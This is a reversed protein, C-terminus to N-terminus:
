PLRIYGDGKGIVRHIRVLSQYIECFRLYVRACASEGYTGLHRIRVTHQQGTLKGFYLQQEIYTLVRDHHGHFRNNYFLSSGVDVYHAAVIDHFAAEYLKTRFNSVLHYHFSAQCGVLINHGFAEM